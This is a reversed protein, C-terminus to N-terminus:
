LTKEFFQKTTSDLPFHCELKLQELTVDFPSGFSSIISFLNLKHKGKKFQVNLVPLSISEQISSQPFSQCSMIQELVEMGPEPNGAYSLEKMFRQLLSTAVENFNSIFQGYGEPHFLGLMLNLNQPPLDSPDSVGHLFLQFNVAASNPRVVDYLNDVVMAPYPQHRELMFSLAQNIESLEAGELPYHSYVPAFGAALLIQNTENLSVDLADCLNVVMKRSPSSKGSELYSIHRQSTQSIESLALQSM